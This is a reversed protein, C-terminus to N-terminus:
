SSRSYIWLKDLHNATFGYLEDPHNVEDPTFGYMEDPYNLYEPFSM